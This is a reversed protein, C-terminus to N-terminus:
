REIESLISEYPKLEVGASKLLDMVEKTVKAKDIFLKASNIEVILYSYFM